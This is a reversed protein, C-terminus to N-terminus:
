DAVVEELQLPKAVGGHEHLWEKAEDHLMDAFIELRNGDPDFFYVSQSMVHDMTGDIEVGHDKLKGYLEKLEDPGGEIELAIHNLGLHNKELRDAPERFPFLAIDHHEKGFSLFAMNRETNHSVIEMGLVKTYFDISANVDMCNLVIHQLRNIRAM